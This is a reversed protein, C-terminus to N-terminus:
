FGLRGWPWLTSPLIIDILFELSVMPFRVRSRDDQLATGWGVAGRPAGLHLVTIVHFACNIRCQNNTVSSYCSWRWDSCRTQLFHFLLAYELYRRLTCRRCLFLFLCLSVSSVLTWLFRGSSEVKLWKIGTRKEVEANQLAWKVTYQWRHCTRGM